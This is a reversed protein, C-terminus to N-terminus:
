NFYVDMLNGQADAPMIQFRNAVGQRAYAQAARQYVSHASAMEVPRKMADVPDIIRIPRGAISAAIDPLDFTKLMGPILINATYLTRDSAALTAYSLLGGHCVVGAVRSDLAAALLAWLAGMGKGVLLVGGNGGELSLAYAVARVADAVRMGLLSDELQWASYSAWTEADFIQVFTGTRRTTSAMKSRGMGRVDVAVV